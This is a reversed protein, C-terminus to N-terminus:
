PFVTWITDSIPLVLTAKYTHSNSQELFVHFFHLLLYLNKFTLQLNYTILGESTFLYFTSVICQFSTLITQPHLHVCYNDFRVFCANGHQHLFVSRGASFSLEVLTYITLFVGLLRPFFGPITQIYVTSSTTTDTVQHRTDLEYKQPGESGHLHSWQAREFRRYDLEHKIHQWEIEYWIFWRLKTFIKTVTEITSQM